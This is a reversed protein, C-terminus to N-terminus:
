TAHDLLVGSERVRDRERRQRTLRDFALYIV